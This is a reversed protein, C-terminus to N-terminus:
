TTQYRNPGTMILEGFLPSERDNSSAQEGTVFSCRMIRSLMVSVVLMATCSHRFVVESEAEGSTDTSRVAEAYAKLEEKATRPRKAEKPQIVRQGM